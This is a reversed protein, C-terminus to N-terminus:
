DLDPPFSVSGTEPQYRAGGRRAERLGDADLEEREAALREIREDTLPETRARWEERAAELLRRFRDSRSRDIEPPRRFGLRRPDRFGDDSAPSM